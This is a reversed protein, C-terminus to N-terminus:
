RPPLALSADFPLIEASPLSPLGGRRRDGNQNRVLSTPTDGSRGLDSAHLPESSLGCHGRWASIRTHMQTLGTARPARIQARGEELRLMEVIVEGNTERTLRRQLYSAGLPGGVGERGLGVLAQLRAALEGSPAGDRLWCGVQQAILDEIGVVKLSAVHPQGSPELDLVVVLRNSQEAVSSVESAEIIDIGIQLEPHWLGRETHRPRDSWRFGVAFLEATLLRADSAVVELDATSWLGGTYLEVASGGWLMPDPVGFPLRAGARAFLELAGLFNTRWHTGDGAQQM